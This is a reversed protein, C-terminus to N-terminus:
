LVASGVTNPILHHLTVKVDEDLDKIQSSANTVSASVVFTNLTQGKESSQFNYCFAHSYSVQSIHMSDTQKRSDAHFYKYLLTNKRWIYCHESFIFLVRIVLFPDACFLVKFLMPIGYFQFQVRPLSQNLSNQPFSHQLVSPLSIFAM